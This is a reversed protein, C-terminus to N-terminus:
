REECHHACDSLAFPRLTADMLNQVAYSKFM